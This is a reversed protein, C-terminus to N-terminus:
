FINQCEPTFYHTNINKTSSIIITSSKETGKNNWVLPSFMTTENLSDTYCYYLKNINIVPTNFDLICGNSGTVFITGFASDSYKKILNNKKENQVILDEGFSIHLYKSSRKYSSTYNIVFPEIIIKKICYIIETDFYDEDSSIVTIQPLSM